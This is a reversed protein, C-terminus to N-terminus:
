TCVRACSKSGNQRKARHGACAAWLAARLVAAGRWCVQALQATTEEHGADEPAPAPLCALAAKVGDELPAFGPKCDIYVGSNPETGQPMPAVFSGLGQLRTFPVVVRGLVCATLLDHLQQAAAPSQLPAACPAPPKKPASRM